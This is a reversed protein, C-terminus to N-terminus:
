GERHMNAVYTECIALVLQKESMIFSSNLAKSHQPPPPYGIWFDEAHRKM